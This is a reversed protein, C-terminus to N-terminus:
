GNMKPLTLSFWLGMPENERRCLTPQCYPQYLILSFYIQARVTLHLKAM